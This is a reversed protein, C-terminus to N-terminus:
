CSSCFILLPLHSGCLDTCICQTVQGDLNGRGGVRNWAGKEQFQYGVEWAHWANMNPLAAKWLIELDASTELLNRQLHAQQHGKPIKNAPATFGVLSHRGRTLWLTNVCCWTSVQHSCAKGTWIQKLIQSHYVEDQWLKHSIQHGVVTARLAEHIGWLKWTLSSM